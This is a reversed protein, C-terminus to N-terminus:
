ISLFIEQAMDRSVERDHTLSELFNIIRPQYRFFLEKFAQENGRRIEALLQKEHDKM